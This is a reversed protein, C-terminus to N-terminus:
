TSAFSHGGDKFPNNSSSSSRPLSPPVLFSYRVGAAAAAFLGAALAAAAPMFLQAEHEQKVLPAAAGYFCKFQRQGLGPLCQPRLMKVELRIALGNTARLDLADNGEQKKNLATDITDLRNRQRSYHM